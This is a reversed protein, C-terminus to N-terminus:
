TLRLEPQEKGGRATRSRDTKNRQVAAKTPLLNGPKQGPGHPTPTQSAPTPTQWATNRTRRRRPRAKCASRPAEPPGGQRGGPNLPAGAQATLHQRPASLNQQNTTTLTQAHNHNPGDPKPKIQNPAPKAPQTRKGKHRAHNREGSGTPSQASRGSHSPHRLFVCTDRTPQLKRCTETCLTRATHQCPTRTPTDKVKDGRNLAPPSLPHARRHEKFDLQSGQCAALKSGTWPRSSHFDTAPARHPRYGRRHPEIGRGSELLALVGSLPFAAVTVPRSGHPNSERLRAM